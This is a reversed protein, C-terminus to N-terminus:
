EGINYLENVVINFGINYQSDESIIKISRMSFVLNKLALMANKLKEYKMTDTNM